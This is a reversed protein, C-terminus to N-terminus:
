AGERIAMVLQDVAAELQQEDITLPPALKLVADHAGASGVVVGAAFARDRIARALASDPERSGADTVIEIGVFLGLGRVEGVHDIGTLDARLRALLTRGLSASREWLRERRFVDIAATGAVLNLANGLFTSTHTGPPWHSMMDARGVVASLALGGGVGKGITMLDPTVAWHEGAWTRGTRGFGAQVEDFILVVDNRTCLDRLGELFGPPPIAIGGNGQVPEVIVAAPRGVGSSPDEIAHRVLALADAALDPSAGLPWRYAFPFPLFAADADRAVRERMAVRGNLGIVGSSRGLYGGSFAIIGRRGTLSRALRIATDNADSGSM